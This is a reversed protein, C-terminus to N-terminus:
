DDLLCIRAPDIAIAGAAPLSGQALFPASAGPVEFDYRTVAGLYRPASGARWAIPRALRRIPRSMSPVCWCMCRGAAARATATALRAFGVDVRDPAAVRRAAVHVAWSSPWPGARRGSM